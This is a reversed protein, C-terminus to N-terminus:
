FTTTLKYYAKMSIGETEYSTGGAVYMGFASVHQCNSAESVEQRRAPQTSTACILERSGQPPTTVATGVATLVAPTFCPFSRLIQKVIGIQSCSQGFKLSSETVRRTLSKSDLVAPVPRMAGPGLFVWAFGAPVLSARGCIWSQEELSPGVGSPPDLFHLRCSLTRNYECHTHNGEGNRNSLRTRRIGYDHDESGTFFTFMSSSSSTLPSRVARLPPRYLPSVQVKQVFMFLDETHNKSGWVFGSGSCQIIIVVYNIYVQTVSTSTDTGIIILCGIM